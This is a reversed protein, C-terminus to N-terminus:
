SISAAAGAVGTLHVIPARAVTERLDADSTYRRAPVRWAPVDLPLAAGEFPDPTIELRGGHVVGADARERPITSDHLMARYGDRVYPEQWGSCFVLSWLDGMGVFVYDTLLTDLSMGHAALLDDRRREIGPFFAEWGPTSAFRRYVALAHQAVLAAVYSDQPALQELARVWVGQRVDLPANVFEYPTGTEPDVSPAADVIQWGLDHRSTAELVRARTPRGPFGDVRWAAMIRGALAAHDVQAILLLDADFRRIIMAF